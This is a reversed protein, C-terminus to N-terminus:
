GESPSGSRIIPNEEAERERVEKSVKFGFKLARAGISKTSRKGNTFKQGEPSLNEM